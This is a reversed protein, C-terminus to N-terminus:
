KGGEELHANWIPLQRTASALKETLALVKEREIALELEQDRMVRSLDRIARVKYILEAEAREARAHAESRHLTEACFNDHHRKAEAKWIEVEAKTNTLARAESEAILQALSDIQRNVNQPRSLFWRTAAEQHAETPIIPTNM